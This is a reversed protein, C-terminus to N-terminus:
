KSKGFSNLRSGPIVLCDQMMILTNKPLFKSFDVLRVFTLADYTFWSTMKNSLAKNKRLFAPYM